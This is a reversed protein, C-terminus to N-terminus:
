LFCCSKPPFVFAHFWFFLFTNSFFPSIFFYRPSILSDLLFYHSFFVFHFYTVYFRILPFSFFNLSLYPFIISSPFIHFSNRFFSLFNLRILPFLPYYSFPFSPFVFSIFIYSPTRLSHVFHLIVLHFLCIFIYSSIFSFLPISSFISFIRIYPSIIAFLLIRLFLPFFFENYIFSFPSFCLVYFIILLFSSFHPSYFSFSFFYPFWYFILSFSPFLSLYLILFFHLSIFFRFSILFNRIILLFTLYYPFLFLM